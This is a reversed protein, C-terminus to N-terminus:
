RAPSLAPETATEANAAVPNQPTTARPRPAHAAALCLGALLITFGQVTTQGTTGTLLLLLCSGLLLVPLPDRQAMYRIAVSSIWGAFVIRYFIFALGLIPGSELIHRAWEDEFWIFNAKNAMLALGVITGMGLGNGLLPADFLAPYFGVYNSLFRGVFGQSGGEVNAAGQVRANFVELGSSFFPLDRLFFVAVGLVILSGLWRLAIQPRFILSSILGLVFVVGMGAVLSRSASVASACLTALVASAILWAPYRRSFQNYLLFAAVAAFYLAPGTVYSFTGPPRIRGLAAAIQTSGEQAGSNIFSSPPALFQLVMLIAMPITLLLFWYGVREVDRATFVRAILFIFPWQLFNSRFGYIAIVPSESITFLGVALTLVALVGLVSVFVNRPFLGSRWALFYALLVVPDRVLLLPNALSPVIWKRLAGEFILLFFYVWILQKIRHIDQGRQVRADYIKM